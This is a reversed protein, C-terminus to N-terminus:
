DSSSCWVCPQDKSTLLKVVVKRIPVAITTSRQESVGRPKGRMAQRWRIKPRRAKSKLRM